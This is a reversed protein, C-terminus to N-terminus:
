RRCAPYRDTAPAGKRRHFIAENSLGRLESWYRVDAGRAAGHTLPDYGRPWRTTAGTIAGQLITTALELAGCFTAGDLVAERLDAGTIDGGRFDAFILWARRFIPALM